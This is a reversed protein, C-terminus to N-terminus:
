VQLCGCHKTDLFRILISENFLVLITSMKKFLSIFLIKGLFYHKM